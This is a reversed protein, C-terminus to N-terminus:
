AESTCPSFLSMQDRQSKRQPAQRRRLGEENDFRRRESLRIM